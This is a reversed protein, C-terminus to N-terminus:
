KAFKIIIGAIVALLLLALLVWLAIGSNRLFQSGKDVVTVTNIITDTNNIYKYAYISDHKIRWRDISDHIYVTDGKHVITHWRDVILTDIRYETRISDNQENHTGVVPQIQRCSVCALAIFLCIFAIIALDMFSHKLEQKKRSYNM